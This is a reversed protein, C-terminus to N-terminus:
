AFLSPWKDTGLDNLTDFARGALVCDDYYRFKTQVIASMIFLRIFENM